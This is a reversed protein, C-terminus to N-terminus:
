IIIQNANIFIDDLETDTLNLIIKFDNVVNSYRSITNSETWAKETYIKQNGTMQTILYTIYEDLSNFNVNPSPMISLESRFQWRMVKPPCNNLNVYGESITDVEGYYRGTTIENLNLDYYIIRQRTETNGNITVQYDEINFKGIIM